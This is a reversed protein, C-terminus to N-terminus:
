VSAEVIESRMPTIVKAETLAYHITESLYNLLGYGWSRNRANRYGTFHVSFDWDGVRHLIQQRGDRLQNLKDKNHRFLKVKFDQWGDYFGDENMGHYGCYLEVNGNKFTQHTWKADIGSGHPLAPIVVSEIYDEIANDNGLKYAIYAERISTIGNGNDTIAGM